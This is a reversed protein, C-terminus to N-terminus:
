GRGAYAVHQGGVAINHGELMEGSYVNVLHGNQIYLDAKRQGLAVQILGKKV